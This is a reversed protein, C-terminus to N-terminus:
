NDQVVKLDAIMRIVKAPNGAVVTMQPINCTVVSGAGIVSGRGIRVGKLIISRAGVFVDDEIVIEIPTPESSCKRLNPLIAHHDSDTILVGSGILCNNGIYIHKACSITSGSIGVNEGIYISAIESTTKLIVRQNVGISNRRSLSCAVFNSGISVSSGKKISLEPVGWFRWTNDYSGLYLKCFIFDRFSLIIYYVYKILKM